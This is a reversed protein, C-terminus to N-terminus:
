EMAQKEGQRKDTERQAQRERWKDVTQTEKGRVQREVSGQRQSVIVHVGTEGRVPIQRDWQGKESKSRSGAGLM